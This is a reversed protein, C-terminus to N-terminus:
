KPKYETRRVRWTTKGTIFYDIQAMPMYLLSLLEEYTSDLSYEIHDEYLVDNSSTGMFQASSFTLSEQAFYKKDELIFIEVGNDISLEAYNIERVILYSFIYSLVISITTITISKKKM